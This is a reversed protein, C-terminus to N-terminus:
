DKPLTRMSGPFTNDGSHDARDKPTNGMLILWLLIWLLPPFTFDPVIM